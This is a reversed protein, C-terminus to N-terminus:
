TMVHITTPCRLQRIKIAKYVEYRIRGPIAIMFNKSDKEDNELDDKFTIYIKQSGQEFRVDINKAQIAAQKFIDKIQQVYLQGIYKSEFGMFYVTNCPDRGGLTRFTERESDADLSPTRLFYNPYFAGLIISLFFFSSYMKKRKMM